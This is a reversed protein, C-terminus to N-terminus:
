ANEDFSPPDSGTCGTLGAYSLGCLGMAPVIRDSREM